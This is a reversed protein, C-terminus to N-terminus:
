ETLSRPRESQSQSQSLREVSGALFARLEADGTPAWPALEREEARFPGNTIEHIGAYESRIVVSHWIPVALRYVHTKDTAADGMHVLRLPQGADDFLLVVIDGYILHYTEIKRRHRHPRVVADRHLVIIMEQLADDPSHHLCLRAQKNPAERAHRELKEYWERGVEAIDQTNHFITGTV